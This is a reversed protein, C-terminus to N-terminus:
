KRRIDPTQGNGEGNGGWRSLFVGDSDFIQVSDNVRDTVYVNDDGDVTPGYPEGFEGDGTGSVGWKTVFVGSSTFTQVRDNTRDAMAIAIVRRHDVIRQGAALGSLGITVVVNSWGLGVVERM